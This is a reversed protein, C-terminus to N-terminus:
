SIPNRAYGTIQLGLTPFRNYLTANRSKLKNLEERFKTQSVAYICTNTCSSLLQLMYGTQWIIYFPDLPGNQFYSKSFRWYIYFLVYTMWLLIFSNSVAFLLVISKRRNRMEPDSDSEGRNRDGTIHGRLRRRPVRSATLIHRITLANFLFISLFVFIPTFVRNFWMFVGWIPLTYYTPKLTCYFQVNKIITMPSFLFYYPICQICNLVTVVAIVFYATKATCYTIKINQCCIAVFRDFTFVVTFWASSKTATAILVVRFCCVPTYFLFGVPFYLNNIRNLIVDTIIVMLDAAAMAVLYVTVGKSLGCNGRSFILIALLNVLVFLLQLSHSIRPLKKLNCRCIAWEDMARNSALNNALLVESLKI